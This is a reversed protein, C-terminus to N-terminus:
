WYKSPSKWRNHWFISSPLQNTQKWGIKGNVGPQKIPIRLQTPNWGRFSFFCPQKWQEFSESGEAPATQHYKSKSKTKKKLRRWVGKKFVESLQTIELHTYIYMYINDNIDYDYIYIIM